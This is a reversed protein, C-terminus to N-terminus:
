RRPASGVRAALTLGVAFGVYVIATSAPQLRREFGPSLRQPVLKLDVLSAVATVAAADTLANAVGPQRRRAQLEGFVWAWLMSSATHVVTGTVTHRLSVQNSRLARRPWLWHSVANLPAAASATDRRGRWVLMGGSFASALLGGSIVRMWGPHSIASTRM